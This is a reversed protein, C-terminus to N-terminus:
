PTKGALRAEFIRAVEEAQARDHPTTAPNDLMISALMAGCILCYAQGRLSVSQGAAPQECGTCVVPSSHLLAHAARRQGPPLTDCAPCGTCAVVDHHCTHGPQHLDIGPYGAQACAERACAICAM